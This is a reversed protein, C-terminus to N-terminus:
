APISVARPGSAASAPPTVPEERLTAVPPAAQAARLIWATLRVPLIRMGFWVLRWVLGPVIVAQASLLGRYACAAVTEPSSRLWSFWSRGADGEGTIFATQVVGPTLLFVSVGTGRLEERLALTMDHLFAKSAGYLAFGPAPTM